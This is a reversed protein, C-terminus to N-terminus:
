ATDGYGTRDLLDQGVRARVRDAQGSTLVSWPDEPLGERISWFDRDPKSKRLWGRAYGKPITWSLRIKTRLVQALDRLIADHDTLIDEHRLVMVNGRRAAQDLYSEAKIRWLDMPSDVFLLGTEDRERTMWPTDILADLDAAPKNFSHFQNTLLSQLWLVPHRLLCLFLTQDAHAYDRFVRDTLCAHKWGANEPMEEIHKYDAIREAMLAPRRRDEPIAAIQRAILDSEGSTNRVMTVRFNSNILKHLFNTGTGREGMVKVHSYIKSSPM